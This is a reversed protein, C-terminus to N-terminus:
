ASSWLVDVPTGSVAFEYLVPADYRNVRVCGHSAPYAPVSGYEHFAIGGVFYSAWPMWVSFPVSWSMREKRFVHFSGTPTRGGVGTSIHVIRQVRDGDILLAVQRDLLVEIRRGPGSRVPAPRTARLLARTTVPDLVGSRSLGAWKQFGLVAVATRDDLVGSVGGAGLFGLDRLLEQLARTGAPAELEVAAPRLPRRLDFGPFLGVPVGGEIRVRVAQVGAIGGVTRVLQGIRARLASEDTGAAFRASLDVTVVQRATVVDRVRTGRPVATRLGRLRERPTPGALLLEVARSVSGARREAPVLAGDQVFWAQFPRVAAAGADPLGLLGACGAVVVVAARLRMRALNAVEGPM